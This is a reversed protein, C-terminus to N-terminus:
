SCRMILNKPSEIMCFMYKGKTNYWDEITLQDSLLKNVRRDLLAFFLSLATNQVTKWDDTKLQLAIMSIKLKFLSGYKYSEQLFVGVECRALLCDHQLVISIILHKFFLFNTELNMRSENDVEESRSIHITLDLSALM